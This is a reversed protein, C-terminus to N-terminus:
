YCFGTGFLNGEILIQTTTEFWKKIKVGVQPFSGIRRAYKEFPHSLWWSPINENLNLFGARWRTKSNQLRGPVVRTDFFVGLMM